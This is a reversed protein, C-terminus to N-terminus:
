RLWWYLLAGLGLTGGGIILYPLLSGGVSGDMISQTLAKNVMFEQMLYNKVDEKDQQHEASEGPADEWDINEAIESVIIAKLRPTLVSYDNIPSSPKAGAYLPSGGLNDISKLMAAAQEFAANKKAGVVSGINMVIADAQQIKANIQEASEGLAYYGNYGNLCLWHRGSSPDSCMEGLQYYRPEKGLQYYAPEKGLAYM